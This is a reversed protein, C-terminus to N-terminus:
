ATALMRVYALQRELRDAVKPNAFSYVPSWDRATLERGIELVTGAMGAAADKIGNCGLLVKGRTM